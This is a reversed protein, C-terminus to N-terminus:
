SLMMPMPSWCRSAKTRPERTTVRHRTQRALNREHGARCAADTGLDRLQERPFPRLVNATLEPQGWYGMSVTPGRHVLEGVEGPRCPNDQEDISLRLVGPGGEGASYGGVRVLYEEGATAVFWGM